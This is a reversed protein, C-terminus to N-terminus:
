RKLEPKPSTWLVANHRNVWYVNKSDLAIAGPYGQGSALVVLQSKDGPSSLVQGGPDTGWYVQTDDAALSVVGQQGEILVTAIGDPLSIRWIKDSAIASAYLATGDPTAALSDLIVPSAWVVHSDGGSTSIGVIGAGETWFLMSKGLVLRDPYGTADLTVTVGTASTNLVTGGAGSTYSWFVSDGASVLNLSSGMARWSQLQTDPGGDKPVAHFWGTRGTYGYTVFYVDAGATGVGEALGEGTWLTTVAGGAHAVRRVSGIDSRAPTLGTPDYPLSLTKGGAFYVYDSDVALGFLADLDSATALITAGPLATNASVAPPLASQGGSGPGAEGVSTEVPGAGPGAGDVPSPTVDSSATPSSSIPVQATTSSGTGPQCGIVFVTLLELVNPKM